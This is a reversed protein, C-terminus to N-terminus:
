LHFRTLDSKTPKEILTGNDIWYIVNKYKSYHTVFWDIVRLSVNSTGNVIDHLENRHKPNKAFYASLSGILLTKQQTKQM